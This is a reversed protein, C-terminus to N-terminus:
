CGGVWVDYILGQEHLDIRALDNISNIKHGRARAIAAIENISETSYIQLDNGYFTNESEM